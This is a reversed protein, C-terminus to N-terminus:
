KLEVTDHYSLVSPIEQSEGQELSYHISDPLITELELTGYTNIPVTLEITVTQPPNKGILIQISRADIYRYPFNLSHVLLERDAIFKGSIEHISKSSNIQVSM